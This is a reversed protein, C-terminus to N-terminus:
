LVGGWGRRGGGGQKLSTDVPLSFIMGNYARWRIYVVRPVWPNERTRRSNETNASAALFFRQCPATSKKTGM